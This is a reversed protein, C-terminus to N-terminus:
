GALRRAAPQGTISSVTVGTEFRGDSREPLSAARAYRFPRSGGPPIPGACAFRGARSPDDRSPNGEDSFVFTDTVTLQVKRIAHSTRNVLLGRVDTATAQIDRVEIMQAMQDVETVVPDAARVTIDLGPALALPISLGMGAVGRRIWRRTHMM